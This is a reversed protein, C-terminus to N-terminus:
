GNLQLKALRAYLPSAAMLESHTGTAEVAGANLLFIHDAHMVTSLRHAIIITTRGKTVRALAHQIYRENEADLASTAEDLLLIDPNRVIARALAIRQKQGGSLQLGKEGVQTDFGQPLRDIFEMASAADAAAVIAADSANQAGMRINEAISGAFIVPDQPVLGMRGRLETLSAKSLETGNISIAGADPDYFRLLLQFITSKGAGSLGVLAVTKGAPIHLSIANLIPQEPRSPYAFTVNEFRIDATASSITEPASPDNIEAPISLLENLREAAGAARQIDAVVESLAGVAGAVIISYFVFSSLSGATIRGALVDRGGFWLVTVISGFILLIVIGTLLARMKIRAHSASLLSQVHRNFTINQQQELTFAQITRIANLSEEAQASVDAVREQATRAYVRLKRGMVIIPAVVLPLALFLYSSLHASTVVLLVIGGALMLVNRVAVSLSSGVVTQILTTDTTLRSLIEGTRTTEFFGVHMRMLHSFVDRRIDAVVREGIWTVLYFRAYSAAALLLTVAVLIMFSQDLLREDGKSLGEDILHKLGQGMALVAGATFTMTIFALVSEWGYPRLYRMMSGLKKIPGKPRDPTPNKM